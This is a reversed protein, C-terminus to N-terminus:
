AAFINLCTLIAGNPGLKYSQMIMKYKVADRIDIHAPFKVELVAPDININYTRKGNM